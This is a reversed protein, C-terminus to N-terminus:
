ISIHLPLSIRGDIVKDRTLMDCYVVHPCLACANVDRGQKWLSHQLQYDTRVCCYAPKEYATNRTTAPLRLLEM